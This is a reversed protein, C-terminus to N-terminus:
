RPTGAGPRPSQGRDALHRGPVQVIAIKERKGLERGVSYILQHGPRSPLDDLCEIPGHDAGDSTIMRRRYKPPPAAIVAGPITLHDATTNSGASGPRLMGALPEGTNDCWCGL